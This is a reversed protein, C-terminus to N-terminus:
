ELSLTDLQDVNPNLALDVETVAKRIADLLEKKEHEPLFQKKNSECIIANNLAENANLLSILAHQIKMEAMTHNINGDDDLEQSDNPSFDPLLRRWRELKDEFQEVHGLGDKHLNELNLLLSRLTLPNFEHWYRFINMEKWTKIDQFCIALINVFRFIIGHKSICLPSNHEIWKPLQISLVKEIRGILKRGDDPNAMGWLSSFIIGIVALPLTACKTVDSILEKTMCSGVLTYSLSSPTGQLLGMNQKVCQQKWIKNAKEYGAFGWSGTILLFCRSPFRILPIGFFAAVSILAFKTRLVFPSDSEFFLYRYSDDTSSREWDFCSKFIQPHFQVSGITM